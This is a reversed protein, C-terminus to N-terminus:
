LLTQHLTDIMFKTRCSILWLYLICPFQWFFHHYMIIQTFMMNHKIYFQVLPFKEIAIYGTARVFHHYHHAVLVVKKSSSYLIMRLTLHGIKSGFTSVVLPAAEKFHRLFKGESRMIIMYKLTKIQEQEILEISWCYIRNFFEPYLLTRTLELYKDPWGLVLKMLYLEM